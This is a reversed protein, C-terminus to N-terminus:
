VSIRLQDKLTDTSKELRGLGYDGAITSRQMWRRQDAPISQVCHLMRWNDWLVMDGPQWRHFYADTSQLCHDVVEKLLCDGEPTERGEIGVAFWPSVRLVKRGTEKQVFVMPHVVRPADKSFEQVRISAPSFRLRKLPPVGAFKANEVLFDAKYLVNLHEIESKLRQPLTGYLRVQDLFGTDGGSSPIEVPRLIGGHNTRETYILDSHWPLFIGRQKGDIEYMDGVAPEYKVDILEPNDAARSGVHPHLEIKGFVRSLAIQLEPGSADRFVLLGQELWHKQLKSRVQVNHLDLSDTRFVEMGFAGDLPAIQLEM